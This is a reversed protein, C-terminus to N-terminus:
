SQKETSPQPSLPGGLVEELEARKQYISYLYRKAKLEARLLRIQANVMTNFEVKGVEYAALSSRAWHESQVLLADVYLSYNEQINRIETALADVRHPLTVVLSRHSKM